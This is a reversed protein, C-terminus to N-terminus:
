VNQTQIELKKKRELKKKIKKIINKTINKPVYYVGIVIDMKQNSEV